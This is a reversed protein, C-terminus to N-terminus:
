IKQSGKDRCDIDTQKSTQVQTIIYQNEDERIRDLTANGKELNALAM